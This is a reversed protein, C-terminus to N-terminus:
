ETQASQTAKGAAAALTDKVTDWAATPKNRIRQPGNRSNAQEAKFATAIRERRAAAAERRQAAVEQKRQDAERKRAAAELAKLSGVDDRASHPRAAAFPECM